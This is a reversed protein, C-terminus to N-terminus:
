TIRNLLEQLLGDDDDATGLVEEDDPLYEVFIDFNPGSAVTGREQDYAIAGYDDMKPLHGQYLGIYVRKREQSTVRAASKDCERAAITEALDGLSAQEDAGLLYWLVDRRRRNRLLGFVEDLGVAPAEDTAGENTSAAGDDDSSGRASDATRGRGRGRNTEEDDIGGQDSPTYKQLASKLMTKGRTGSSRGVATDGGKQYERRTVAPVQSLM